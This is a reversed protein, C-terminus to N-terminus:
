YYCLSLVPDVMGCNLETNRIVGCGPSAGASLLIILHCPDITRSCFTKM